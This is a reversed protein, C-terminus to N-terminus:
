LGRQIIGRLLHIDEQAHEEIQEHGPLTKTAGRLTATPEQEPELDMGEINMVFQDAAKVAAATEEKMESSAQEPLVEEVPNDKNKGFLKM